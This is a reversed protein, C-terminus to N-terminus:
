EPYFPPLTDSGVKTSSTKETAKLWSNFQQYFAKGDWGKTPSSQGQAYLQHNLAKVSGAFQGFGEQNCRKELGSLGDTIDLDHIVFQRLATAAAVPQNRNCANKFGILTNDQYQRLSPTETTQVPNRRDFWWLFLTLLWLTFGTIAMIQWGSKRQKVSAEEATAAQKGAEISPQKQVPMVEVKPEVAINSDGLAPLVDVLEAPIVAYKLEDEITDWWAISIEPLLLEGAYEPVIAFSRVKRGTVWQGSHRSVSEPTDPYVRAHDMPPWSIEPLMTDLLGVAKIEIVRTVPEGVRAGGKATKIQSNVMLQRAPLWDATVPFQTPRPEVTIQLQDSAARVRRGRNRMPTFLSGRKSSPENVRGLFSMEPIILTGSREPFVAYVRELARYSVGNRTANMSTEGLKVLTAHEVQPDPLSGEALSYRYYLRVTLALQSHVYVSSANTEVEIFVVPPEGAAVVPANEVTIEIPPTSLKGLSFAPINLRGTHKPELVYRTRITASQVGNTFSVMSENRTDLLHFNATLLRTDIDLTQSADDTEVVLTISEGLKVSSRDVRADVGAQSALSFLLLWLMAAFPILVQASQNKHSSIIKM